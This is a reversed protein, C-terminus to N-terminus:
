CLPILESDQQPCARFCALRLVQAALEDGTMVDGGGGGGGGCCYCCCCCCCCVLADLGGFGRLWWAQRM